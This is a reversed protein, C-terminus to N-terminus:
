VTATSVAVLMWRKSFKKSLYSKSLNSKSLNSMSLTSQSPHSMSVTSKSANSMSLIFFFLNSKFLILTIWATLFCPFSANASSNWADLGFCGPLGFVQYCVALQSSMWVLFVCWQAMGGRTEVCEHGIRIVPSTPNWIRGSKTEGLLFPALFSFGQLLTDWSRGLLLRFFPMKRFKRKGEM